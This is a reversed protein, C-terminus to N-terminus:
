YWSLGALTWSASWRGLAGYCRFGASSSAAQDHLRGYRGQYQALEGLQTM